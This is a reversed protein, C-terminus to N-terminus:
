KIEVPNINLNPKTRTEKTSAEHAKDSILIHLLWKKHSYRKSIKM